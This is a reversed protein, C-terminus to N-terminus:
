RPSSPKKIAKDIEMETGDSESPLELSLLLRDHSRQGVKGVASCADGYSYYYERSDMIEFALLNCEGISDNDQPGVPDTPNEHFSEEDSMGDMNNLESSNIVMFSHVKSYKFGNIREYNNFYKKIMDDVKIVEKYIAIRDESKTPM